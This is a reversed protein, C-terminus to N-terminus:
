PSSCARPPSSARRCPPSPGPASGPRSPPAAPVAPAPRFAPPRPGSPTSPPSPCHGRQKLWNLAARHRRGRHLVQHLPPPVPPHSRQLKAGHFLPRLIGAPHSTTGSSSAVNETLSRARCTIAITFAARSSVASATRASHSRSNATASSASRARASANALLKRPVPAAVKQFHLPPHHLQRQRNRALHQRALHRHVLHVQRRNHPRREVPHLIFAHRLSRTGTLVAASQRAM